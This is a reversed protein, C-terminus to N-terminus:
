ELIGTKHGGDGVREIKITENGGQAAAGKTSSKFTSQNGLILSHSADDFSLMLGEGAVINLDSGKATVKKGNISVSGVYDTAMKSETVTNDAISLAFPSATLRSLPRLEQESGISMGLWPAKSMMAADPLPKQSGLEISFIGNRDVPVNFVDEWIPSAADERDYLRITISHMGEAPGISSRLVGQYNLVRSSADSVPASRQAYLPSSCLLACFVTVTTYVLHPRM